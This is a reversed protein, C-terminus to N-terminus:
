RIILPLALGAYSSLHLLSPVGQHWTGQQLMIFEDGGPFELRFTVPDGDRGGEIGPTEPDDAPVNLSYVAGLQADQQVSAQGYATGRIYSRVVSGGPVIGQTRVTGYFVSPLGPPGALVPLAVCWSLVIILTCLSLVLSTKM